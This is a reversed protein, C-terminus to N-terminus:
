LSIQRKGFINSVRLYHFNISPQAGREARMMPLNFINTPLTQRHLPKQKTHPPHNSPPSLPIPHILSKFNVLTEDLPKEENLRQNPEFLLSTISNTIYNSDNQMSIEYKKIFKLNALDLLCSKSKLTLFGWFCYSHKRMTM